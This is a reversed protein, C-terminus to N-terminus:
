AVAALMALMLKGAPSTLDLKDLQLVVVEVRLAGLTKITALVDPADRWLM